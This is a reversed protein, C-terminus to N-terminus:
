GQVEEEERYDFEAPDIGQESLLRDVKAELRDDGERSQSSGWFYFFALGAAQWVLQLFESQWNEFTSSFFQPLFDSWTFVQGHQEAENRESMMQFIFQAAWSLVFFLGTVLGFSYAKTFRPKVRSVTIGKTSRQICVCRPIAWGGLDGCSKDAGIVALRAPAERAQAAADRIGKMRAGAGAFESGVLGIRQAPM